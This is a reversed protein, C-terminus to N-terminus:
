LQEQFSPHRTLALGNYQGSRTIERAPHPRLRISTNFRLVRGNQLNDVQLELVRETLRQLASGELVLGQVQPKVGSLTEVFPYEVPTGKESFGMAAYFAAHASSGVALYALVACFQGRAVHVAVGNWASIGAGVSLSWHDSCEIVSQPPWYSLDPQACSQPFVRLDHMAIGALMHESPAFENEFIGYLNASSLRAHNDLNLGAVERFIKGQKARAEAVRSSFISREVETNLLRMEM